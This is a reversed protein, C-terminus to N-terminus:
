PLAPLAGAEKQDRWPASYGSTPRMPGARRRVSEGGQCLHRRGGVRPRPYGAPLQAADLRSM